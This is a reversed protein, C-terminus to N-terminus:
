GGVLGLITTLKLLWPNKWIIPLIHLNSFQFMMKNVHLNMAVICNKDM